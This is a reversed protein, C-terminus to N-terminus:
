SVYSRQKRNFCDELLAHYARAASATEHHDLVYQQLVRGMSQRKEQGGRILKSLMKGFRSPRNAVYGCGEPVFDGYTVDSAVVPVGALGLEFVRIPSKGRNQPTGAAPALGIDFGKVYARYEDMPMFPLSFIRDHHKEAFLDKASPWGIFVLVADDAWGLVKTLATQIMMLDTRHTGSGAWGIILKDETGPVRQPEVAAWDEAKVANPVIEIPTKTVQSYKAKLYRSSVTILDAVELMESFGARIQQAFAFVQDPGVDQLQPDIIGEGGDRISLFAKWVLDKKDGWWVYSPSAPDLNLLDDDFDYVALKHLLLSVHEALRVNHSMTQRQQIVVDFERVLEYVVPFPASYYDVDALGLAQMADLPQKIRYTGVAHVPERLIGKEPQMPNGIDSPLGLVRM